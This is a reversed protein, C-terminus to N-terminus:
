DGLRGEATCLDRPTNINFFPDFPMSPWEVAAFGIHHAFGKLSRQGTDLYAPVQRWADTRWMGCVPHLREGSLAIAAAHGDIGSRLRQALDEPLFPMDCPLTMVLGRAEDRGWELAAAVGALPGEINPLDAICPLDLNGLQDTSRLAIVVPSSWRRAQEVTREILSTAGLRRRPKGGGIRSGQGGALIAIAFDSQAIM